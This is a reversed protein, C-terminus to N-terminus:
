RTASRDPDIRGPREVASRSSVPLPRDIRRFRKAWSATVPAAVITNVEAATIEVPLDCSWSTSCDAALPDLIPWPGRRSSETGIGM